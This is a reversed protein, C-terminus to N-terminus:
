GKSGEDYNLIEKEIPMKDMRKLNKLPLNQSMAMGYLNNADLYNIYSSPKKMMYNVWIDVTNNANAMKTSVQTIGGRLGRETMSYMDEDFIMDIVVGTKPLM